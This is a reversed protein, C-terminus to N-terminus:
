GGAAYGDRAKVVGRRGKLTVKLEHWGDSSVGRPAYSLVYRQRFEDLLRVFAGSLDRAKDVELLSGGTRRSLERLFDPRDAGRLAVGYVVVDSRRAVELVRDASLWSATDLGDSFVILLDRGVDAEGVMIAAYAADIVATEGRPEIRTLERKVQDVERTLAQRLVVGNSFTLLAARDGPQLRDVLARGAGQLHGLPEGSVSASADLALIVNLPLTDAGALSVEQRVGNDRVDFDSALLGRLPRDGDTVLVDVRVAEVGTSFTPTQAWAAATASLVLGACLSRTM